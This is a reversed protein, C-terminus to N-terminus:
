RGNIAVNNNAATIFLNTIGSLQLNVAKTVGAAGACARLAFVVLQGLSGQGDAACSSARMGMFYWAKILMAFRWAM